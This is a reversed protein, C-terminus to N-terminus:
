EREGVSETEEIVIAENCILLATCHHPEVKDCLDNEGM